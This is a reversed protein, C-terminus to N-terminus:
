ISSMYPYLLILIMFIMSLSYSFIICYLLLQYYFFQSLSFRVIPIILSFMYSDLLFRYPILLRYLLLRYHYTYFFTSFSISRYLFILIIHLLFCTLLYALNLLSYAPAHMSEIIEQLSYSLCQSFWTYTLTGTPGLPKNLTSTPKGSYKSAQLPYHPFTYHIQIINYTAKPQSGAPFNTDKPIFNYLCLVVLVGIM